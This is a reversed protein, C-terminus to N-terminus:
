NLTLLRLIIIFPLTSLLVSDLRDLIGGHGPLIKGSDKIGLKRKFYSQIYDGFLSSIIIAITLIILSTNELNFYFHNTVFVVIFTLVTGGIFGEITKKPSINPFLPTKGMMRGVVYCMSDFAWITTFFLLLLKENYEKVFFFALFALPLWIYLTTLLMSPFKGKKLDFKILFITILHILFIIILLYNDLAILNESNFIGLYIIIGPYLLNTIIVSPVRAREGLASMEQLALFSFFAMLGIFYPLGLFICGVVLAVYLSGFITRTTFNNM